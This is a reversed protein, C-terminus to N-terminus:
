STASAPIAASGAPSIQARSSSANGKRFTPSPLTWIPWLGASRSTSMLPWRMDAEVGQTKAGSANRVNFNLVGDFVNAQLDKYKTRYFSLNVALSRTKYKFGAEFNDAQEDGFLFSGPRAITTSGPLSNSRVDFGGAKTGPAFSAYFMLDDNIDYQINAMPNFSDESLKGAITHAEHRSGRIKM